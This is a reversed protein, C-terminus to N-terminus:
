PPDAAENVLFRYLKRVLFKACAPQDLLVKLVDDGDWDGTKALVTKSGFDHEGRVFTFAGGSTHWGTFARAAQQIDKEAYNGVGLTFLEMVERAYNENPHSKVNQNSDLWVLMAPDRSIERLLVRFSGLAHKFLLEGQAEMMPGDNVKKISTAFHN